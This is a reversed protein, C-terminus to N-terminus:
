RARSYPTWEAIGINLARFNHGCAVTTRGLMSLYARSDWRMRANISRNVGSTSGIEM